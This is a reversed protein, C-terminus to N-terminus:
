MHEEAHARRQQDGGMYGLLGEHWTKEEGQCMIIYCTLSNGQTIPASVEPRTSPASDGNFSYPHRRVNIRAACEPYEAHFLDLAFQINKKGIYGHPGTIM